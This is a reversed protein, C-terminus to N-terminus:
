TVYRRQDLRETYSGPKKAVHSDLSTTLYIIVRILEGQNLLELDTVLILVRPKIAQPRQNM